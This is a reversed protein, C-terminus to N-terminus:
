GARELPYVRVYEVDWQDRYVGVVADGTIQHPQFREPVEVAGVRTGDLSLVVWTGGPAARGEGVNGGLVVAHREPEYRQVWVFGEPDVLFDAFAPVAEPPSLEQAWAPDVAVPLEPGTGEAERARVTEVVTRFAVEPAWRTEPEWSLTDAGSGELEVLRIRPELTGAVMLAEGGEGAEGALFGFRAAPSLPHPGSWSETRVRLMGPVHAVEHGLLSGDRGFHHVVLRDPEDGGAGVVANVLWGDRSVGVVSSLTGVRAADEAGLRVAEVSGDPLIRTVRSLHSDWAELTDGRTWAESLFRFEGPGDGEGGYRAVFGGEADFVRLESTPRLPVLVGGDALLRPALVGHLEDPGGGDVAGIELAPSPALALPAGVASGDGPRDAGPACAAVALALAVAPRLGTEPGFRPRKTTNV